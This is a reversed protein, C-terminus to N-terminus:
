AQTENKLGKTILGAFIAAAAEQQAADPVLSPLEDAIKQLEATFAADDELALAARLRDALPALGAARFQAFAALAASEISNEADMSAPTERNFLPSGSPLPAVETVTYGTQDSIQKAEVRWGAQYLKLINDTAKSVDTQETRSLAFFAKPREGTKLLGAESLEPRDFDRNLVESIRTAEATGIKRFTESHAGGALTGSGSEALMTLMGGTGALVLKKSLYDLRVEFPQIGRAETNPKYDSGNPLFGPNGEAISQAVSEYGTKDKDNVGPPGIVVGSPIGYREIFDDWDSDSLSARIWKVLAIRGIPRETERFVFFPRRMLLEPGIQEFTKWDGDPNYKWEGTAGDRVCNWQDVPRLENKLRELISFGRFSALELFAFAERLNDIEEYRKRLYDGQAKADADNECGKRIKIDWDLEEIASHRLTILASLDADASEIGMFPAGFTWMLDAFQGRAYDEILRVARLLDLNRLPNTQERWKRKESLHKNDITM